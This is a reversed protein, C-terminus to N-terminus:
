NSDIKISDKIAKIHKEIEPMWRHATRKGHSWCKVTFGIDLFMDYEWPISIIEKVEPEKSSPDDFNSFKRVVTDADGLRGYTLDYTTPHGSKRSFESLELTEHLLRSSSLDRDNDKSRKVIFVHIKLTGRAGKWFPGRVDLLTYLIVIFEQDSGRVAEIDIKNVPSWQAHGDVMTKPLAITLTKAGITIQSEAMPLPTNSFAHTHLLSSLIILVSIKTISM